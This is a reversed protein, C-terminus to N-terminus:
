NFTYTRYIAAIANADAAADDSIIIKIEKTHDNKSEISRKKRVEKRKGILKLQEHYSVISDNQAEIIKDSEKQKEALSNNTNRLIDNSLKNNYLQNASVILIVILLASLVWPIYKAKPAINEEM